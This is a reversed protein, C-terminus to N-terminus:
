MEQPAQIGILALGEKLVRSCIVLLSLLEDKQDESASLIPVAAYLTNVSSAVEYLYSCILNPKLEKAASEVMFPFKLLEQMLAKAHPETISTPATIKFDGAKALISQQRAYAYQIYPGTTGELKITEDVDFYIRTNPEYRLYGFKIAGFAVAGWQKLSLTKLSRWSLALIPLVFLLDIFHEGLVIFNSSLGQTLFVRFPADTAWLMAAPDIAHNQKPRGPKRKPPVAIEVGSEGCFESYSRWAALILAESDGKSKAYAGIKEPNLDPVAHLIKNVASAYNNSVVSARGRNKLWAKFESKNEVASNIRANRCLYRECARADVRWKTDSNVDTLNRPQRPLTAPSWKKLSRYPQQGEMKAHQYPQPGEM